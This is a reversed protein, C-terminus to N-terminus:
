IQTRNIKLMFLFISLYHRFLQLLSVPRIILLLFCFYQYTIGWVLMIDTWNRQVVKMLNWLCGFYDLCSCM